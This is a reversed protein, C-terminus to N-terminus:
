QLAVSGLYTECARRIFVFVFIVVFTATDAGAAVIGLASYSLEM